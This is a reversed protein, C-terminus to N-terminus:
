RDRRHAAWGSGDGVKHRDFPVYRVAFAGLLRRPLVLFPNPEQEFGGRFRDVTYVMVSVAGEGIRGGQPHKPIVGLLSKEAPVHVIQNMMRAWITSRVRDGLTPNELSTAFPFRAVDVVINQPASISGAKRCLIPRM